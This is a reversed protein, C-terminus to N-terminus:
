NELLGHPDEETCVVAEEALFDILFPIPQLLFTPTGCQSKDAIEGTEENNAKDQILKKGIFTAHRSVFTSKGKFVNQQWEAALVEVKFLEFM